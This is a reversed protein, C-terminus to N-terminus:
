EVADGKVRLWLWTFLGAAATFATAAAATWPSEASSAETTSLNVATPISAGVVDDFDINCFTTHKDM